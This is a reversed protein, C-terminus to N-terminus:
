QQPRAPTLTAVVVPTSGRGKGCSAGWRVAATAAALKVVSGRLFFYVGFDKKFFLVLILNQCQTRFMCGHAASVGGGGGCSM